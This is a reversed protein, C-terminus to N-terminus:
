RYISKVLGWTRNLAPTAGACGVGGPVGGQWAVFNRDRPSTLHRTGNPAGPLQYVTIENLVLCVPVSCGGCSGADVTKANNIILAITFYETGPNASPRPTGPVSATSFIRARDTPMGPTNSTVFYASIGGVGNGDWLDLCSLAPSRPISLVGLSAARCSGANRFQWWAPLPDSASQLDIFHEVHDIQSAPLDPDFTPYLEHFGNNTDCAFDRNLAGATGCDNWSLNIGAAWAIPAGLALLAPILLVAARM